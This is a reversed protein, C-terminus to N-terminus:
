VPPVYLYTGLVAGLAVSILAPGLGGYIAVLIVAIFYTTFPLRTGLANSLPLRIATALAVSVVAAGYRLIQPSSKFRPKSSM